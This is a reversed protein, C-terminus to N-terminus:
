NSSNDLDLVNRYGWFSKEQGKGTLEERNRYAVVKQSRDGYVLSAPELIEYFHVMYYMNTDSKKM